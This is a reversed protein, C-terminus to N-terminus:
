VAITKIEKTITEEIKANAMRLVPRNLAAVALSVVTLAMSDVTLVRWRLPEIKAKSDAPVASVTAVILTLSVFPGPEVATLRNGAVM